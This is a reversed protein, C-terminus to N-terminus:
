RLKYTERLTEFQEPHERLRTDVDMIWHPNVIPQLSLTKSDITFYPLNFYKSFANLCMQTANIKGQLTYGAIHYTAITVLHLLDINIHPEGEWTDIIATLKNGQKKLHKLLAKEDVVGGRAANIIVANPKCLELFSEDCLHWTPFEGCKTLPTHFTIIDSKQAIESLSVGIAKPPDNLIVNMGLREAMQAVLTGVNGAGVIGITLANLSREEALHKIAAEVYDCVGQSNCGPANTWFINNKNCYLTDIHDYGITATAIFRVQTGELLKRNCGTRTRVFLADASKIRSNTIEDPELYEIQGVSELVGNLFPIYKDAIILM